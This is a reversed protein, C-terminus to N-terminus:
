CSGRLTLVCIATRVLLSFDLWLSRHDIYHMDLAIREAYSTDSRGGAQWMGGLGPKVTLLKEGWPGYKKLEAPVIPRPGIVSMSGELVNIVQPLEDLSTRRLFAGLPTIRPDGAIKFSNEFKQQLDARTALQHEANVVMTRFKYLSFQVGGRGLRTQRFLVPGPSTVGVLLAVTLMLPFGVALMFLAGCIDTLRKVFVYAVTDAPGPMARTAAAAGVPAAQGAMDAHPNLHPGDTLSSHTNM